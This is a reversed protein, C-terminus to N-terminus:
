YCDDIAVITRGMRGTEDMKRQGKSACRVVTKLEGTVYGLRLNQHGMAPFLTHIAFSCLSYLRRLFRAFFPSISETVSAHPEKMRM